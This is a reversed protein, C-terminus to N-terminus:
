RAPSVRGEAVRKRSWLVRLGRAVICALAIGYLVGGFTLLVLAPFIHRAIEMGDGFYSAFFLFVALMLMSSALDLGYTAKLTRSLALGVLALSLVIAVHGFGLTVLGGHLIALADFGLFGIERGPVSSLIALNNPENAAINMGLYGTMYRITGARSHEHFAAAGGQLTEAPRDLFLYRLYSDAGHAKAWSVFGYDDHLLDYNRTAPDITLISDPGFCPMLVVKGRCDDVYAGRPMGYAEQFHATVDPYPFVRAFMNNVVNLAVSTDFATTVAMRGLAALVLVLYVRRVGKEPAQRATIVRLMLVGVLVAPATNKSCLFSLGTALLLGSGLRDGRFVVCPTLVLLTLFLPETVIAVSALNLTYSSFVFALALAIAIRGLRHETTFLVFLLVSTACFIALQMFSIVRPDNACLSFLVRQTLSRGTLYSWNVPQRWLYAFSDPYEVPHLHTWAFWAYYAFPGVLVSGCLWDVLQRTQKSDM